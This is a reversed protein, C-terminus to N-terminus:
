SPGVSVGLDEVLGTTVDYVWGHVWIEVPADSARKALRHGPASTAVATAASSLASSTHPSSKWENWAMQVSSDAAVRQVNLKVNEEVLARWVEDTVDTGAVKHKHAERFKVLEARTSSAYLSRIPRIWTDIRTEDMNTLVEESPSAIAAQVAGCKTHGMVVIHQVGLHAIAYSMVTESSLDDVLYQNGINRTVFLEGPKADLVTTEPVRSDACGLYAFKPHQAKALEPILAPDETATENRWERNGIFLEQLEPFRALVGTPSPLSVVLPKTASPSTTHAATAAAGHGDGGAATTMGLASQMSKGQADLAAKDTAAQGGEAALADAEERRKVYATGLVAGVVILVVLLLAVVAIYIRRSPSARALSSKRSPLVAQAEPDGANARQQQALLAEDDSDQPHDGLLKRMPTKNLGLSRMVRVPKEEHAGQAAGKARRAAQRAKRAAREDAYAAEEEEAAAARADDDSGSATSDDSSAADYRQQPPPAARPATRRSTHSDDGSSSSSSSSSTTSYRRPM